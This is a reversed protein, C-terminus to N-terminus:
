TLKARHTLINAWTHLDDVFNDSHELNTTLSNFKDKFRLFTKEFRASRPSNSLRGLYEQTELVFQRVRPARGESAFRAIRVLNVAINLVLERAKM